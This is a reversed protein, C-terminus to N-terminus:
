FLIKIRSIQKDLRTKHSLELCGQLWSPLFANASGSGAGSLFPPVFPLQQQGGQLFSPLGQSASAAQAQALQQLFAPFGQAGGQSLLPLGQPLGQPLQLKADASMLVPYHHVFMLVLSVLSPPTM